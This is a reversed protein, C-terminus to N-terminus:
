DSWFLYPNLNMSLFSNNVMKQYTSAMVNKLKQSMFVPIIVCKVKKLISKWSKLYVELEKFM